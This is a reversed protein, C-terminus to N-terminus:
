GLAGLGILGPIAVAAVIAVGYIVFTLIVLVGMYKWFSKQLRLAEEVSPARQPATLAGTIASAYRFLYLAPIFYLVAMLVYLVGLGIMMLPPIQDSAFLPGAVAVAVGVAIMFLSAAIGLISLFRVWPRTKRLADLMGATIPEAGLGAYPGPSSM